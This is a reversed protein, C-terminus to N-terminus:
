GATEEAWVIEEVTPGEGKAGLESFLEMVAGGVVVAVFPLDEDEGAFMGDLDLVVAVGFGWLVVAPPVHGPSPRHSPVPPM